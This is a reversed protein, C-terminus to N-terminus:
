PQKDYTFLYGDSEGQDFSKRHVATAQFRHFKFFLQAPLNAEHVLAKM